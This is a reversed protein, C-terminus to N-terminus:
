STPRPLVDAVRVAGSGVPVSEGEAYVRTEAYGEARPERRVELTRGPVNVIWYEPVGYRAYLGTKTGRDFRVTSDSVEVVLAVDAQPDPDRGEYDRPEGRLVLVDPEPADDRLALTSQMALHCAEGFAAQLAYFILKTALIHANGQSMKRYIVGDILETRPEPGLLGAEAM